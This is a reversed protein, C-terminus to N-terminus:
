FYSCITLLQDFNFPVVGRRQADKAEFTTKVCGLFACMSVYQDLDLQYGKLAKKGFKQSLIRVTEPGFPFGCQNLARGLEESDIRGSRDTDFMNFSGCMQGVFQHLAAYEHFDIEGSKDTDFVKMLDQCTGLTFTKGGPWKMTMLERASISGSKDRDVAGFWGRLELMRQQNIQNYMQDCFGGGGQGQGQGHGGQGQGQGFGSQPPYGGQQPPYGSQPPYGGQQPPYGGQQPPYGSQPPPYGSQPPPYGGQQPPYGGQQPSYGGQQPPYGGQQPPYGGQQPPYGGLNPPYNM